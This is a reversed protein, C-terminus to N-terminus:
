HNCHGSCSGCSGSCGGNGGNAYMEIVGQIDDILQTYNKNAEIYEHIVPNSELKDFADGLEKRIEEVREKSPENDKVEMAYGNRLNNYEEIEKMAGEDAAQKKEADIFRKYEETELIAEGLKQAQELITM